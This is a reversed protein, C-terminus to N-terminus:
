ALSPNWEFFGQVGTRCGALDTTAKDLAPVQPLLRNVSVSLNASLPVLYRALPGLRQVPTQLARVAPSASASLRRVAGLATPLMNAVPYLSKVAANFDGLVGSVSALSTHLDSLTPPLA